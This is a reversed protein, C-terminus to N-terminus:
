WLIYTILDESNCTPTVLTHMVCIFQWQEAQSLARKKNRDTLCSHFIIFISIEVTNQTTVPFVLFHVLWPCTLHADLGPSQPLFILVNYSWDSEPFLNELLHNLSYQNPPLGAIRLVWFTRISLSMDFNQKRGYCSLMTHAIHMNDSKTCNLHM